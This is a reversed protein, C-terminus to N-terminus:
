FYFRIDSKSKVVTAADVRITNSTFEISLLEKIILIEKRCVALLSTQDDNPTCTNTETNREGYDIGYNTQSLSDFCDNYIYFVPM